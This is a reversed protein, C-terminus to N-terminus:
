KATKMKLSKLERYRNMTEVLTRNTEAFLSQSKYCLACTAQKGFLNEMMSPQSGARSVTECLKPGICVKALSIHPVLSTACRAHSVAHLYKANRQIFCLALRRQQRHLTKYQISIDDLCCVRASVSNIFDDQKHALAFKDLSANTVSSLPLHSEFFSADLDDALLNSLLCHRLGTNDRSHSIKSDHPVFRGM